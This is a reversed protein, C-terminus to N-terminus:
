HAKEGSLGLLALSKFPWCPSDHKTPYFMPILSPDRKGGPMWHGLALHGLARPNPHPIGKISNDLASPIIDGPQLLQGPWGLAPKLSGANAEMGDPPWQRWSTSGPLCSARYPNHCTGNVM